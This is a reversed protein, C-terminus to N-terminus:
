YGGGWQFKKKVWGRQLLPAWKLRLASMQPLLALELHTSKIRHLLALACSTNVCSVPLSPALWVLFNHFVLPLGSLFFSFFSSKTVEVFIKGDAALCSNAWGPTFIVPSTFSLPSSKGSSLKAHKNMCLFLHPIPPPSPPPTPHAEFRFFHSWMRCPRRRQSPKRYKAKSYPASWDGLM